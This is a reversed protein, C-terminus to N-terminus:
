QFTLNYPLHVWTTLLSTFNDMNTIAVIGKIWYFDSFASLVFYQNSNSSLYSGM